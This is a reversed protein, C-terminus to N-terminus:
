VHALLGVNLPRKETKTEGPMYLGRGDNSGKIIAYGHGNALRNRKGRGLRSELRNIEVQKM